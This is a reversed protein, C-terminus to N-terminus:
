EGKYKMIYTMPMTIPRTETAGAYYLPTVEKGKLGVDSCSAGEGTNAFAKSMSTYTHRKNMDKQLTGLPAVTDEANRIFYGRLDPATFTDVGNGTGFNGRLLPNSDWLSQDILIGGSTITSFLQSYMGARVLLQGKLVIFNPHQALAYEESFPSFLIDGIQVDSTGTPIPSFHTVNVWIDMDTPPAVGINIPNKCRYQYVVGLVVDSVIAGVKYNFTPVWLMVGNEQISALASTIKYLLMNSQGRNIPIGGATVGMSTTINYGTDWSMSSSDSSIEIANKFGNIGFLQKTWDDAM